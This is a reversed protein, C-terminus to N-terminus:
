VFPEVDCPEEPALTTAQVTIFTGPAYVLFGRRKLLEVMSSEQIEVHAKLGCGDVDLLECKIPDGAKGVDDHIIDDAM